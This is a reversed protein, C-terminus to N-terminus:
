IFKGCGGAACVVLAAGSSLSLQLWHRQYRFYPREKFDFIPM